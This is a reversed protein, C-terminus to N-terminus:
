EDAVGITWGKTKLDFEFHAFLEKKIDLGLLLPLPITTALSSGRIYIHRRIGTKEGKKVKKHESFTLFWKKAKEDFIYLIDWKKTKDLLSVITSPVTTEWSHRRKYLKRALEVM